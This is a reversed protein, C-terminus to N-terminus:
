VGGNYDQIFLRQKNNEIFAGVIYNDTTISPDYDTISLKCGGTVLTQVIHYVKMGEGGALLVIFPNKINAM